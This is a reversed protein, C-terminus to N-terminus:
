DKARYSYLAYEGLCWAPTRNLIRDARWLLDTFKKGLRQIWNTRYWAPYLISYGQRRTLLFDDGFAKKIEWPSFCRSELHHLESYGGWVDRFRRFARGPRLKLLNILVEVLYWKNVFTLVMTGGPKLRSKLVGAVRHLDAVTNLAGFFVYIHDFRDDPFLGHVNEPTGVKVSVNKLGLEQIKRSANAVMTPSIDIGYIKRDPYIAGFHALDLGPGCGVELVNSFAHTKVEERFSQRIRQLAANKWYREEFSRADRDYYDAVDQYYKGSDYKKYDCVLGRGANIKDIDIEGNRIAVSLEDPFLKAILRDDVLGPFWTSALCKFRTMVMAQYGGYRASLRNFKTGARTDAKFSIKGLRELSLHRICCLVTYAVYLGKNVLNRSSTVPAPGPSGSVGPYYYDAWANARLFRRYTGPGSVPITNLVETATFFNRNTVTLDSEDMIHNICWEPEQQGKPFLNQLFKLPIAYLWLCQSRTILFIDIDLHNNRHRTPNRAALSGSIGVFKLLPNRGLKRLQAIQSDILREALQIKAPKARIKEELDPLGAFGDQLIIKGLRHLEHLAAFYEDQGTVGLRAAMEEIGIVDGFVGAYCVLTAIGTEMPLGHWLSGQPSKRWVSPKEAITLTPIAPTPRQRNIAPGHRRHHGPRAPPVIQGLARVLSADSRLLTTVKAGPPSSNEIRM